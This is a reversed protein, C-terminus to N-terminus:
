YPQRNGQSIIPEQRGSIHIETLVVGRHKSEM